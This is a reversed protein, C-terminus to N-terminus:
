IFLAENLAEFTYGLKSFYELYRPLVFLVKDKAKLSDHFVIISGSKTHKISRALCKEGTIKTDFDGPLVSWIVIHYYDKLIQIQSRSISGYPPRFFKTKLVQNCKEVDNLFEPNSIKKGRVHNFSHNGITHGLEKIKDILEPEKIAKKGLCFFTASANYDKLIDLIFPTVEKEPGDDFTMYISKESIRVNWILDKYINRLIVPPHVFYM